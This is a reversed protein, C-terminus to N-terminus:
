PGKDTFGSYHHINTSKLSNGFISNYFKTGRDCETKNPNRKSSILFKSYKNATTQSIKWTTYM